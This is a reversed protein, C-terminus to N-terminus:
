EDKIKEWEARVIPELADLLLMPNVDKLYISTYGVQAKWFERWETHDIYRKLGSTGNLYIYLGFVPRNTSVGVFCIEALTGTASNVLAHVEVRGSNTSM